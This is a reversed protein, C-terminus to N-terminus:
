AKAISPLSRDVTFLGRVSSPIELLFPLRLFVSLCAVCIGSLWTGFAVLRGDLVGVLGSVVSGNGPMRRRAWSDVGYIRAQWNETIM